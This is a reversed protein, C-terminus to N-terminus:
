LLSYGQKIIEMDPLGAARTAATNGNEVISMAYALKCLLDKDTPSVSTTATVNTGLQRIFSVVHDIYAQTNNETPPAWKQIIKSITDCGYSKIYKRLLYLAARYGYPMTVFQEFANNADTNPEVKGKWSNYKNYRINLPNNNRYGRPLNNFVNMDMDNNLLTATTDQKSRRRIYLYIATAFATVALAIYQSRSAKM